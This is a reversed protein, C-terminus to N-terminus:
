SKPNSADSQNEIILGRIHDILETAQKIENMLKTHEATNYTHPLNILNDVVLVECAKQILEMLPVSSIQLTKM